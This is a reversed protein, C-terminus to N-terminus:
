FNETGPLTKTVRGSNGLINKSKKDSINDRLHVESSSFNKLTKERKYITGSVESQAEGIKKENSSKQVSIRNLDSIGAITNLSNVRNKM